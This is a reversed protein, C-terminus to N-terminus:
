QNWSAYENGFSMKISETITLVVLFVVRAAIHTGPSRFSLRDRAMLVVEVVLVTDGMHMLLVRFGLGLITDIQTRNGSM